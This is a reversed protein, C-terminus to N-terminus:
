RNKLGRRAKKIPDAANSQCKPCSDRGDFVFGCNACKRRTYEQLM